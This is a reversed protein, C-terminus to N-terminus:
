WRGNHKEWTNGSALKVWGLKPMMKSYGPRAADFRLISVGLKAAYDFLVPEYRAIAHQGSCYAALVFLHKVPETRPEVVVWGDKAVFLFARRDRCAKLVYHVFDPMNFRKCMADLQVRWQLEKNM